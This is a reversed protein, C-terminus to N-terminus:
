AEAFTVEFSGTKDLAFGVKQTLRWLLMFPAAFWYKRLVCGMVRQHEGPDSLFRATGDLTDGAITLKVRPTKQVNRVWQRQVNATSLLIKDEAVVFWITVQYPKGSTRGYHTLTLTQKSAVRHLTAALNANM